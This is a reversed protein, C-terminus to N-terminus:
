RGAKDKFAAYIATFQKTGRKLGLATLDDMLTANDKVEVGGTGLKYNEATITAPDIGPALGSRGSGAGGQAQRQDKIADKFQDKLFSEVTIGNYNQDKLVNGESDTMYWTEGEKKSNQTAKDIVSSEHTKFFTGLQSEDKFSSKLGQYIQNVTNKRQTSGLEGQLSQNQKTLEDIRTKANNEIESIKAKLAEDGKGNKIQDELSSLKQNRESWVRKLAEYHKEDQNKSIGLENFDKEYGAHVSRVVPKAFENLFGPLEASAGKERAQNLINEQGKKDLVFYGSGTLTEAVKVHADPNAAIFENVQEVTIQNESM